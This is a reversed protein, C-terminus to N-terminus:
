EEDPWQGPLRLKEMYPFKKDYEEVEEAPLESYVAAEQFKAGPYALGGPILEYGLFSDFNKGDLTAIKWYDCTKFGHLPYYDPEGFIVVGRYGMKRADELSSELLRGGIGKAQYDPDVCLPGFTLVEIKEEGRVLSSIAYMILGVVKGDVEAVRTLEPIYTQDLRLKHVLYHESCGPHHKNWFARKAVLESAYQDAETEKRIIVNM